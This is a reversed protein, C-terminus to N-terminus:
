GHIWAGRVIDAGYKTHLDCWDGPRAPMKITASGIAEAAAIAERQGAENVDNDAAIVISASRLMSRWLLATAKLNGAGFSVVICQELAVALAACTAWGEGIIIHSTPMGPGVLGFLGKRQAGRIPRKTGDQNIAELNRCRMGSGYAPSILWRGPWGNIADVEGLDFAPLRKRALYPHDAPAPKARRWAQCAIEAADAWQQRQHRERTELNSRIQAVRESREVPNRVYAPADPRWCANEGSEWNHFCVSGDTHVIAAGNDSRPKALTPFRQWVEICHMDIASVDVGIDLATAELSQNM